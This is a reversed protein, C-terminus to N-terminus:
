GQIRLPKMFDTGSRTVPRAETRRMTAQWATAVPAAISPRLMAELLYPTLTEVGARVISAAQKASVVESGYLARAVPDGSPPAAADWAETISKFFLNLTNQLHSDTMQTIAITTGDETTHKYNFMTQDEPTTKLLKEHIAKMVQPDFDPDSALRQLTSLMSDKDGHIMKVRRRAIEMFNVQKLAQPLTMFNNNKPTARPKAGPEYYVDGDWGDWVEDRNDDAPM